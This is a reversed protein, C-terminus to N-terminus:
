CYLPQGLALRWANAPLITQARIMQEKMFM